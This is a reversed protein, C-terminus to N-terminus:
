YLKTSVVESPLLTVSVGSSSRCFGPSIEEESFAESVEVFAVPNDPSLLISQLADELQQQVEWLDDYNGGVVTFLLRATKTPQASSSSDVLQVMVQREVPFAFEEPDYDGVEVHDPDLYNPRRLTSVPASMRETLLRILLKTPNDYVFTKVYM